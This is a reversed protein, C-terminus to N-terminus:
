HKLADDAAVFGSSFAWQLNYGGCKGDVDLVEGTFYLGPCKCSELSETVESLVVGGACVQANEMGNVASIHFVLNQYKRLFSMLKDQLIKSVKMEPTLSFHKMLAIHIKKHVTGSLFEELSLDPFKKLREKFFKDFEKEEFEPFLNVAVQVKSSNKLAYSAIRSIQFVPIGSIGYDTFQVEGSENAVIRNNILLAIKAKARVGSLAKVFKDTARLQVLGPVVSTVTHGFDKAIKFGTMGKGEKQSAPGGCSVIVKDTIYEKDDYYIHFKKENRNYRIKSVESETLIRIREHSLKRRFFDLVVAAQECYPYVYGDRDRLMFGNAKFFALLEEVGFKSFVADLKDYDKCYYKELGFDKNTLNCKGNGTALIKKGVRDNKEFLLVEGGGAAATIAAMMGSAGAGIVAIKM